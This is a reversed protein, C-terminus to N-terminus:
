SRHLVLPYFLMNHMHLLYCSCRATIWEAAYGLPRKNVTIFGKKILLFDASRVKWIRGQPNKQIDNRIDADGIADGGTKVVLSVDVTEGVKTEPDSFMLQGQAASVITGFMPVTLCVSLIMAAAKKMM